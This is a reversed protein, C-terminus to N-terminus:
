LVDTIPYVYVLYLYFFGLSLALIIVGMVSSHVVIGKASVELQTALSADQAPLSSAHRSATRMASRFQAAAFYIGAVVLALVVGFILRSAFLQWEFLRSRYLYGNARYEYYRQMAELYRKKTIPDGLVVDSPSLPMATTIGEHGIQVEPPESSQRALKAATAAATAQDIRSQAVSTQPFVAVFALVLFTILLVRRTM